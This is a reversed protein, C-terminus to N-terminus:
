PSIQSNMFRARKTSYCKPNRKVRPINTTRLTSRASIRMQSFYKRDANKIRNKYPSFTRNKKNKINQKKREGKKRENKIEKNRENM